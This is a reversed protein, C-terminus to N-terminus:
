KGNLDDATIEKPQILLGQYLARLKEKAAKYESFLAMERRADAERGAKRYLLALRYHAVPNTPEL